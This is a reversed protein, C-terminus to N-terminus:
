LCSSALVTCTFPTDTISYVHNVADSMCHSLVRSRLWLKRQKAHSLTHSVADLGIQNGIDQCFMLAGQGGGEVLALGQEVGM